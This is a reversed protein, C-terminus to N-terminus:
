GEPLRQIFDWANAMQCARKVDELTADPKGFFINEEVSGWFLCPEQSVLGIRSRLSQVNYNRLDKGNISIFGSSRDLESVDYFRQQVCLSAQICIHIETHVLTRIVIHAMSHEHTYTRWIRVILQVATSKGCGSAGVLAIVKGRPIQFSVDRYVQPSTSAALYVLGVNPFKLLGHLCHADFCTLTYAFSGRIM